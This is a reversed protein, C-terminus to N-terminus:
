LFADGPSIRLAGRGAGVHVIRAAATVGDERDCKHLRNEHIVHWALCDRLDM